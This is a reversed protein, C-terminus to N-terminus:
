GRCMRAPPTTMGGADEFDAPDLWYPPQDCELELLAGFAGLAYESPRGARSGEVRDGKVVEVLLECKRAHRVYSTGDKRVQNTTIYDAKMRYFAVKYM